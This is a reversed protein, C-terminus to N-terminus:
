EDGIDGKKEVKSMVLSARYIRRPTHMAPSEPSDNHLCPLGLGSVPPCWHGLPVFAWTDSESARLRPRPMVKKEIRRNRTRPCREKPIGSSLPSKGGFSDVETTTKEKLQNKWFGWVSLQFHQSELVFAASLCGVGSHSPGERELTLSSPSPSLPKVFHFLM